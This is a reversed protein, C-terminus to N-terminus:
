KALVLLKDLVKKSNEFIRKDIEAFKEKLAEEAEIILKENEM